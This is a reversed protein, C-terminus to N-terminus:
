KVEKVLTAVMKLVGRDGHCSLRVSWADINVNEIEQWNIEPKNEHILTKEIDPIVADDDIEAYSYCIAEDKPNYHELWKKSNHDNDIHEQIRKKLNNSKYARGIYLLRPAGNGKQAFAAYVGHADPDCPMEGITQFYGKFELSRNINRRAENLERQEKIYNM